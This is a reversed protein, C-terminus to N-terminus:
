AIRRVLAPLPLGVRRDRIDLLLEAGIPRPPLAVGIEDDAEVAPPREYAM